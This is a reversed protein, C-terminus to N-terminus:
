KLIEESARGLDRAFRRLRQPTRPCRFLYKIKHSFLAGACRRDCFRAHWRMHAALFQITAAPWLVLFVVRARIYGRLFGLLAARTVDRHARVRRYSPTDACLQAM